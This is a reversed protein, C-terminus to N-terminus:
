AEANAEALYEVGVQAEAEPLYEVGAAHYMERAITEIKAQAHSAVHSLIAYMCALSCQLLSPIDCVALVYLPRAFPLLVEGGKGPAVGPVM